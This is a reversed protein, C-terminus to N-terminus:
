ICQVDDSIWPSIKFMEEDTGNEIATGELSIM